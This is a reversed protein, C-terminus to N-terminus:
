SRMPRPGNPPLKWTASSARKGDPGPIDFDIVIHNEPVKVYHLRSADLEALKSEVNEWKRMPIGDDTAYQAPCDKCIDNFLSHQEKFEIWSTEPEATPEETKVPEDLFEKFKEAKFGSYYSRVREGNVTEAREKYEEFYNMLEERFARRSYPYAVKAEDNYTNYMAWARKLSVGDEKKFIYFSDLMFNYFDNSAGLMRTPIYDDYLHKNQEYVEKCHWAIGGLEFDVKAVLDRYKKAPIKEGTPEVDILRRILGSKADTIKVPKNTGLFMFCKFQSSYQSRFKENVLMTEHSVLSNLRTNDEIRSLDGDHQIAILPNSKFAELAFANSSSGLVKSDFVSWYGDFLKQVINLVTSKGSGPPGYLVLFKQIKRSDGNVIAGVAWEIKKREEPSYLTAMLEDYASISGEELLYPLRKSAYSEKKVPTNAFILTDDLTHYNDRMQRQCYKHWNDIMGSEADWMHLVRYSDNFVQKHEEAYIDLARDIMQLADQEDTSWLGREEMWVAYFDSGRIMLDKSKKIIFKPYIEITGRKGTRTAIMLFDIM